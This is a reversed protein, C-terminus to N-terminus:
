RDSLIREKEPFEIIHSHDMVKNTVLRLAVPRYNSAKNKDGKKFLLTIFANKGDDWVQSQNYPAQFILPM